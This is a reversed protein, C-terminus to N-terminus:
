RPTVTVVANYAPVHSHPERQTPDGGILVVSGPVLGGGLVRDLEAIGSTQREDGAADVERLEQPLQSPAASRSKGPAAPKVTEEVLTAWEGCDPCRGMWKLSECGCSQCVFKTSPKPM